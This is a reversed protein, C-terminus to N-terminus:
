EKNNIISKVVESEDYDIQKGKIKQVHEGGKGLVALM